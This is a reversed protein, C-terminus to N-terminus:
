GFQWGASWCILRGFYREDYLLFDNLTSRTYESNVMRARVRLWAINNDVVRSLWM